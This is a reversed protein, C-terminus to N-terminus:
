KWNESPYPREVDRVMPRSHVKADPWNRVISLSNVAGCGDDMGATLGRALFFFHKWGEDFTSQHLIKEESNTPSSPPTLSTNSVSTSPNKPKPAVPPPTDKKSGKIKKNPKKDSKAKTRRTQRQAGVKEEEESTSWGSDEDSEGEAVTSWVHGEGYVVERLYLYLRRPLNIMFSM